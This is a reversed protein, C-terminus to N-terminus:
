ITTGAFLYRHHVNVTSRTTSKLIGTDSTRVTKLATFTSGGKKRFQLKAAQSAYGVYKGTSPDTRALKGTGTM